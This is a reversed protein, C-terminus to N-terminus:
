CSEEKVQVAIYSLDSQESKVDWDADPDSDSSYIDFLSSRRPQLGDTQTTANCLQTGFVKM